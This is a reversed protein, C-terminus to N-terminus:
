TGPDPCGSAPDSTPPRTSCVAYRYRKFLALPDSSNVQLKYTVIVRRSTANSTGTVVIRRLLLEGLGSGLHVGNLLQYHFTSGDGTKEEPSASCGGGGATSIVTTGGVDVGLCGVTRLTDVPFGLLGATGQFTIARNMRYAAIDAGADAAAIARAADRERTSSSLSRWALSLTAGGVTLVIALTVISAILTWGSEERRARALM